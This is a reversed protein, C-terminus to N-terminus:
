VLAEADIRVSLDIEVGIEPPGLDRSRKLAQSAGDTGTWVLRHFLKDMEDPSSTM